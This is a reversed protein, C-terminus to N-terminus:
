SCMKTQFVSFRWKMKLFLVRLSLFYVAQHPSVDLCYMVDYGRATSIHCYDRHRGIVGYIFPNGDIINKEGVLRSLSIKIICGSEVTRPRSSLISRIRQSEQQVHDKLPNPM